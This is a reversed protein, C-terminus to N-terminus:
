RTEEVPVQICCTPWSQSTRRSVLAGRGSPMVRARWNEGMSAKPAQAPTTASRTSLRRRSSAVWAEMAM